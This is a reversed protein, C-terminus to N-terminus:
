PEFWTINLMRHFNKDSVVVLQERFGERTHHAHATMFHDIGDGSTSHRDNLAKRAIARVHHQEIDHHRAAIPQGNAM